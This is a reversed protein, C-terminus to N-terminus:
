QSAQETPNETTPAVAAEDPSAGPAALRTRVVRVFNWHPDYDHPDIKGAVLHYLLRALADTLLLDYDVRAELSADPAEAQPRAAELQRLLYDEPDLGDGASDRIARLLDARASPASWALTFGRREYLEPLADRAAVQAEFLTTGEDDRIQEVRMRLLESESAADQAAARLACCLVLAFARAVGARPSSKAM